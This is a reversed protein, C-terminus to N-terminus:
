TVAGAQSRQFAVGLTGLASVVALGALLIKIWSYDSYAALTGTMTTAVAGAGAMGAFATNAIAAVGSRTSTLKVAGTAKAQATVGLQQAPPVVGGSVMALAARQVRQVRATWGEAFGGWTSLQRMYALRAACYDAILAAAPRGDLAALTIRGMVGDAAQGTFGLVHQLTRVAQAPGSNVAMDLVAYNLGEPLAAFNIPAVYQAKYIARAEADGLARLEDATCAVGRWASLTALTIGKQTPGGPDAALDSYGGESVLILDLCTEVDSASM